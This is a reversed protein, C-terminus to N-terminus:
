DSLLPVGQLGSVEVVRRPLLLHKAYMMRDASNIIRANLIFQLLWISAQIFELRLLGAPVPSRTLCVCVCAYIWVPLYYSMKRNGPSRELASTKKTVQPPGWALQIFWPYPTLAQARCLCCAPTIEPWMCVKSSQALLAKNYTIWVSM